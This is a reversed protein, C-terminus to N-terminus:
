PHRTRERESVIPFPSAIGFARRSPSPLRQRTRFTAREISRPGGRYNHESRCFGCTRSAAPRDGDVVVVTHM